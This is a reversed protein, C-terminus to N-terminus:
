CFTVVGSVHSGCRREICYFEEDGIYKSSRRLINAGNFYWNGDSCEDALKKLQMKAQRKSLRESTELQVGAYYYGGEAPEYIPYETYHSLYVM